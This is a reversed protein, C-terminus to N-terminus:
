NDLLTQAIEERMARHSERSIPYRWAFVISLLLLVIPVPGVFWRIADVAARPQTPLPNAATPTIYGTLALLQGM